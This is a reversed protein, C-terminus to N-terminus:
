DEEITQALSDRLEQVAVALRALVEDAQEPRDPLFLNVDSFMGGALVIRRGVGPHHVAEVRSNPRIHVSVYLGIDSEM